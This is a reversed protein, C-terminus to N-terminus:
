ALAVSEEYVRPAMGWASLGLTGLVMVYVLIISVSRPLRLRTEGVQVLPTLVYAIILALIFPLLVERVAVFLALLFLGSVSLFIIRSRTWGAPDGGPEIDQIEIM